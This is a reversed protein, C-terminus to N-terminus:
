PELDTLRVQSHSVLAGDEFYSVGSADRWCALLDLVSRIQSVVEEDASERQSAVAVGYDVWPRVAQVLQRMDFHWATALPRDLEALPGPGQLPHTALLQETTEPMLSLALVEASVGANPSLRPDVGAMAPLAYRYITGTSVPQPTPWPIEVPPVQGPM